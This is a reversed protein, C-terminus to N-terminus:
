VVKVIAVWLLDQTIVDCDMKAHNLACELLSFSAVSTIWPDCQLPNLLSM